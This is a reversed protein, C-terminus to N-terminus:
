APRRRNRSSSRTVGSSRATASGSRSSPAARDGLLQVEVHRAPRIERELYVAGDGFAPPAEARDPLSRLRYSPRRRRGSAHRPRRRRRGGQRAVPLRRAGSPSSGTSQTPGTSRRPRSRGRSSRCASRRQATRRAALKDGLADIAAPAPRHVDTRCRRRRSCVIRAGVPLRLGPHIAEAGTPLPPM